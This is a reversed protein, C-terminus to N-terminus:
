ASRRVLFFVSPGFYLPALPGQLLRETALMVKVPLLKKLRASRLNSVSLTAVVQLGAAGLQRIVTHPNHNVFPIVDDRRKAASRIDVPETPLQTGRILHKVRNRFHSYNAVEIIACGDDSLIRAIEALGATPDPLHHMVRIMTALDISHDPFELHEVQMLRRQIKPHNKLFEDAMDLQQRSPDTLTVSDAYDELVPCLRGFGGGIDAATGFHRGRLIRRIALEESAHEYDRGDWYRQYNFSPDDYQDAKAGDPSNSM